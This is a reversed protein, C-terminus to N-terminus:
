EDVDDASSNIMSKSLHKVFGQELLTMQSTRASQLRRRGTNWDFKVARTKNENNPPSILNWSTPNAENPNLTYECARTFEHTSDEDKGYVSHTQFHVRGVTHTVSGSWWVRIRFVFLTITTKVM